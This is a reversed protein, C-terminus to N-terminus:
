YEPKLHTLYDERLMNFFIRREIDHLNEIIQMVTKEDFNKEKLANEETFVDIDFLSVTKSSSESVMLPAKDVLNIRASIHSDVKYLVSFSCNSEEFGVSNRLSPTSSLVEHLSKEPYENVYRLGIRHVRSILEKQFVIELVKSIELRYVDWLPYREDHNFVISNPRLEFKIPKRYFLGVRNVRVQFIEPGESPTSVESPTFSTYGYSEDLAEFLKGLMIEYPFRSSFQIEVFTDRLSDKHLKKPLQRVLSM